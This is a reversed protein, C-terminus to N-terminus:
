QRVKGIHQSIVDAINSEFEDYINILNAQSDICLRCTRDGEGDMIKRNM